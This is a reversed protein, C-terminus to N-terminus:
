DLKERIDKKQKVVKKKQKVVKAREVGGEVKEAM